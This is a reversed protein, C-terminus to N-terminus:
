NRRDYLFLKADVTTLLIIGHYNNPIQIFEKMLPNVFLDFNIHDFCFYIERNNEDNWLVTLDGTDPDNEIKLFREGCESCLFVPKAAAFVEDVKIIIDDMDLYDKM